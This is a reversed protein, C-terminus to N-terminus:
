GNSQHYYPSSTVHRLVWEKDFIEFKRSAYQSGKDCWLIQLINVERPIKWCCHNTLMYKRRKPRKKDFSNAIFRLAPCYYVNNTNCSLGTTFRVIRTTKRRPVSKPRCFTEMSVTIYSHCKIAIYYTVLRCSYSLQELGTPSFHGDYTKQVSKQVPM